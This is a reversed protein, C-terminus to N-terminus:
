AIGDSSPRWDGAILRRAGSVLGSDDGDGALIAQVVHRQRQLGSGLGFLGFGNDGDALDLALEM